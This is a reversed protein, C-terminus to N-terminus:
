VWLALVHIVKCSITPKVDYLILGTVPRTYSLLFTVFFLESALDCLELVMLMLRSPDDLFVTLLDDSSRIAPPISLFFFDPCILGKHTV